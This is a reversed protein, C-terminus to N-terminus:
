LIIKRERALKSKIKRFMEQYDIDGRGIEDRYKEMIERVELNLKDEVALDAAVVEVLRDIVAGPEDTSLTGEKVLAHLLNQTIAGIQDRTLRL